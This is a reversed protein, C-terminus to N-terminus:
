VPKVAIAGVSERGDYLVLDPYVGKRNIYEVNEIHFHNEHLTRALIDVDLWHVQQPIWDTFLQQYRTVDELLGPWRDGRAKRREYEECFDVCDMRYPTECVIFVKGGPKLCAYMKAVARMLLAPEFFHLVRSALIVDFSNDELQIEDPFAGPLLTLQPQMNATQLEKLSRQEVIALHAADLDNCVVHAGTALTPLTAIGFAAGIELVECQQHQQMYQHVYNVFGLGFDDLIDLMFGQQNLTKVYRNYITREVLDM